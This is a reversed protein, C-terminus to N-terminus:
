YYTDKLKLATITTKYVDFDKKRLYKLLSRRKNLMTQLGRRGHNDKRHEQLHVTMYRIRETLVACQVPTSGVDNEHMRFRTIADDMKQKNREMQSANHLDFLRRVEESAGQEDLEASSLGGVFRRDEAPQWAAVGPFEPFLKADMKADKANGADALAARTASYRPPAAASSAGASGEEAASEAAAVAAAPDDSASTSFSSTTASSSARCMLSGPGTLTRAVRALM